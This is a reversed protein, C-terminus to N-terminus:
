KDEGTVISDMRDIITTLEEKLNDLEMPLAWCTNERLLDRMTRWIALPATMTIKIRTEEPKAIESYIESM